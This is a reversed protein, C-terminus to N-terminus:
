LFIDFDSNVETFCPKKEVFENPKVAAPKAFPKKEDRKSLWKILKKQNFNSLVTIITNTKDNLVVAINKKDYFCLKAGELTNYRNGHRVVDSAEEFSVEREKMRTQAHGSFFFKGFKKGQPDNTKTPAKHIVIDDMGLLTTSRGFLGLVLLFASSIKLFKM